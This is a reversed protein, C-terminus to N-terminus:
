QARWPPIDGTKSRPLKAKAAAEIARAANERWAARVPRSAQLLTPFPEISTVVRVCDPLHGDGTWRILENGIARLDREAPQLAKRLASGIAEDTLIENSTAINRGIRWLAEREKIRAVAVHENFSPFYIAAEIGATMALDMDLPKSTSRLFSGIQRNSLGRSSLSIQVLIRGISAAAAALKEEGAIRQFEVREDKALERDAALQRGLIWVAVAIAVAGTILGQVLTAAWEGSSIAGIFGGWWTVM